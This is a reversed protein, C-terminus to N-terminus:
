LRLGYPKPDNQEQFQPLSLNPLPVIQRQTYSSKGTNGVFISMFYRGTAEM